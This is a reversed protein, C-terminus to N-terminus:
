RTKEKLSMLYSVVDDLDSGSLVTGYGPMLSHGFVKDLSQLEDKRFSHIAGNVDRVQITFADENVRVGEISRDAAQVRVTLYDHYGGTQPQSDAPAILSARLYDRGRQDGIYTLEPGVGNGAGSVIHCAPCGGATRFIEGGRVPDGPMEEPELRGLSRVYAAVRTRQNEDLTWMAPMGTGPIGDGLLDVLAQDDAAYKLRSRVLNSGEGGEGAIGHCRACHVKFLREGDALEDASLGDLPSQGVAPATLLTLLLALSTTKKM